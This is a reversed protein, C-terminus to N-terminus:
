RGLLWLKRGALLWWVLWLMGHIWALGAAIELGLVACMGGALTILGAALGLGAIVKGFLGAHLMVASLLTGAVALFFFGATLPTAMGITNMLAMAAEITAPAAGKAVSEQLVLPLLSLMLVRPIIFVPLGLLAFFGAAASLSRDAQWLATCLALFLLGLLAISITDLANIFLLGLIRSRQFVEAWGATDVPYDGGTIIAAMQALYCTLTFFPAIGGIRFLLKWGSEATVLDPKQKM